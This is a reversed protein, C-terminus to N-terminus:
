TPFLLINVHCKALGRTFRHSRVARPTPFFIFCQPCKSRTAFFRPFLYMTLFHPDLFCVRFTPGLSSMWSGFDHGSMSYGVLVRVAWRVRVAVEAM